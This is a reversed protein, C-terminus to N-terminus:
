FLLRAGLLLNRVQIQPAVRPLWLKKDRAPQDLASRGADSRKSLHRREEPRESVFPVLHLFLLPDILKRIFTSYLTGAEGPFLSLFSPRNERGLFFFLGIRHRICRKNVEIKWNTTPGPPFAQRFGARM